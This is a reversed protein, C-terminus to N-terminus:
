PMRPNEKKPREAISDLVKMIKLVGRLNKGNLQASEAVGQEHGRRKSLKTSRKRLGLNVDDNHLSPNWKEFPMRADIADGSKFSISIWCRRFLSQM